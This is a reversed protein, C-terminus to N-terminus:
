MPYVGYSKYWLYLQLSDDDSVSNSFPIDIQVAEWDKEIGYAFNTLAMNRTAKAKETWKRIDKDYTNGNIMDRCNQCVSLLEKIQPSSKYLEALKPDDSKGKLIYKRIQNQSVRQTKSGNEISENHEKVEKRKQQYMKRLSSTIRGILAGSIKSRMKQALIKRTICGASIITALESKLTTKQQENLYTGIRRNHILKYIYRSKKGLHTTTQEITMGQMKLNLSEWYIKLKERHRVDGMNFVDQLILLSATDRDPYEYKLKKKTQRIMKEIEPIMADMMNKILHFRDCIQTVGPIIRNIAETFCRGRDRTIYQIQPNRILWNDLAEGSRDELLAIPIHRMQGVVVSMYDKGKKYAFDDIGVYISKNHM